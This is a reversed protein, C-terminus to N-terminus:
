DPATNRDGSGLIGLWGKVSFNILEESILAM